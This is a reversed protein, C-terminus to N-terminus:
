LNSVNRFSHSLNYKTSQVMEDIKHSRNEAFKSVTRELKSLRHNSTNLQAALKDREHTARKIDANMQVRQSEMSENSRVTVNNRLSIM